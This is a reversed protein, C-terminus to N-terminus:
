EDGDAGESRARGSSLPREDTAEIWEQPVNERAVKEKSKAEIKGDGLAEWDHVIYWTDTLQSYAYRETGSEISREDSM